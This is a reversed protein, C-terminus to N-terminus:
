NIGSRIVEECIDLPLFFITVLILLRSKSRMYHQITTQSPLNPPVQRTRM